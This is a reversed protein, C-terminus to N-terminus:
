KCTYTKRLSFESKKAKNWNSVPRLYGVCRSYVSTPVFFAPYEEFCKDCKCMIPNPYDWSGPPKFIAGGDVRISSSSVRKLNIEKEENCDYCDFKITMYQNDEMFTSLETPTM